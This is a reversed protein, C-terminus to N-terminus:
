SPRSNAPEEAVERHHARGPQGRVGRLSQNKGISPFTFDPALRVIGNTPTPVTANPAKTTNTVVAGATALSAILLLAPLVSRM